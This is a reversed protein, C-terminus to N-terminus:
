SRKMPKTNHMDDGYEIDMKIPIKGFFKKFLKTMHGVCVYDLIEMAKKYENSPCDLIISDHVSCIIVSKMKLKILERDVYTLARLTLEGATNQIPFNWVQRKIQEMEWEDIAMDLEDQIHRKRGFVSVIYGDKRAKKWIEDFWYYLDPHASRFGTLLKDAEKVTIDLEKSLSDAHVDFIASFNTRKAKARELKTFNKGYIHEALDSHLDLGKIFADHFLADGSYMGAIRLEIQSYDGQVIKGNKFRSTFVPKIPLLKFKELKESTTINQLNPKSSSLRFTEVTHMNFNSRIRGDKNLLIEKSFVNLFSKIQTNAKEVGIMLDLIKKHKNEGKLITLTDQACSAVGNPFTKSPKTRKLVPFKLGLPSEYLLQVKQPASNFNFNPRKDFFKKLQPYKKVEDRKKDVIGIYDQHLKELVKKDVIMGNDEMRTIAKSKEMDTVTLKDLGDAVLMESFIEYLMYTVKVDIANYQLLDFLPCSEFDNKVIMLKHVEEEYGAYEPIFTLVLDKLGNYGTENLTHHALMTDFVFNLNSYGLFISWRQEFKTNHGIIDKKSLMKIIKAITKKGDLPSDKHFLPFAFVTDKNGVSISLVKADPHYSNLTKTEYDICVPNIKAIKILAKDVQINTSVVTSDKKM